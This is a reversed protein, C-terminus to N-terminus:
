FIYALQSSGSHDNIMYVNKPSTEDAYLFLGSSALLYCNSGELYFSDCKSMTSCHGGCEVNTRISVSYKSVIYIIIKLNKFIYTLYDM